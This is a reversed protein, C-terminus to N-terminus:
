GKVESWQGKCGPTHYLNEQGQIGEWWTQFSDTLGNLLPFHVNSRRDSLRYDQNGHCGCMQYLKEDM